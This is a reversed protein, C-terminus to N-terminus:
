EKAKVPSLSPRTNDDFYSKLSCTEFCFTFSTADTTVSVTWGGLYHTAGPQTSCSLTIM